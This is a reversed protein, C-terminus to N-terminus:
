RSNPVDEADPLRSQIEADVLDALRHLLRSDLEIIAFPYSALTSSLERSARLKKGLALCIESLYM